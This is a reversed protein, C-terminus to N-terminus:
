KVTSFIAAREQQKELPNGDFSLIKFNGHKRQYHLILAPMQSNIKETINLLVPLDDFVPIKDIDLLDIWSIEGEESKQLTGFPKEANLVFLIVDGNKPEKQTIIASIWLKHVKLGTEEKIERKASSFIDEDSEVHGGIGNWNDAGPYKQPDKRILLVKGNNRIFILTRAFFSTRKLMPFLYGLM